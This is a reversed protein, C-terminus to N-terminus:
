KRVRRVRSVEEVWRRTMSHTSLQFNFISFYAPNNLSDEGGRFPANIISM